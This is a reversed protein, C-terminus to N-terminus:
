DAQDSRALRYRIPGIVSYNGSRQHTTTTSKRFGRNERMRSLSFGTALDPRQAATRSVNRRSHQVVRNFGPVANGSEVALAVDRDNRPVVSSQWRGRGSSEDESQLKPDAIVETAGDM